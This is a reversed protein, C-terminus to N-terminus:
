NILKKWNNTIHYSFMNLMMEAYPNLFRQVLFNNIAQIPIIKKIGKYKRVITAVWCNFKDSRIVKNLRHFREYLTMDWYKQIDDM